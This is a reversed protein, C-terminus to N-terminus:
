GRGQYGCAKAQAALPAPKWSCSGPRLGTGSVSVVIGIIRILVEHENYFKKFIMLMIVLCLVRKNKKKLCTKQNRNEM